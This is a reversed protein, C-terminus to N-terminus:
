EDSNARGSDAEGGILRGITRCAASTAIDDHGLAIVKDCLFDRWRAGADDPEDKLAFAVLWQIVTDRGLRAGQQTMFEFHDIPASALNMRWFERRVIWIM